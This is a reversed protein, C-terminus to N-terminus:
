ESWRGGCWSWGELIFSQDHLEPEESNLGVGKLAEGITILSKKKKNKKKEGLSDEFCERPETKLLYM